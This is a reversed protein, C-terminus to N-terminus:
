GRASLAPLSALVDPSVSAAASKQPIAAVLNAGAIVGGLAILAPVLWRSGGPAAGAAPRRYGQVTAAIGALFAIALCPLLVTLVGFMPDNPSGLAHTIETWAPVILLLGLLLAVVSGLLPTWRRRVAVVVAGAVLALVGFGAIPPVLEKFIAGMLYLLLAGLIATAGATLVVVAVILALAGFGAMPPVVEKIIGLMIYLLLAGLIATAGATLAVLSTLPRRARRVPPPPAAPPRGPTPGASPDLPLPLSEPAPRLTVAM